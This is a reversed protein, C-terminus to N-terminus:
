KMRPSMSRHDLEGDFDGVPALRQQAHETPEDRHQQGGAGDHVQEQELHHREHLAAEARHFGARVARQLEDGFDALPHLLLVERGLGGVLADELDGRQDDQQRREQEDDDDREPGVRQEGVEFDADEVAQGNRRDTHEADQDGAPRAGVLVRQETAEAGGALQDGVFERHHEGREADDDLGTRHVQLCITTACFVPSIKPQPPMPLGYMKVWNM